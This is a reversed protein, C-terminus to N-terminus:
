QKSFYGNLPKWDLLTLTLCTELICIYTQTFPATQDADMHKTNNYRVHIERVFSEFVLSQYNTINYRVHIEWM